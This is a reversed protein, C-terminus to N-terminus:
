KMRGELDEKILTRVKFIGWGLVDKTPIMKYIPLEDSFFAILTPGSGSMIVKEAGKAMIEKCYEKLQPYLDFTSYELVNGTAKVLAEVRKTEIANVVEKINPRKLVSINQLHGYVEKTSANFPPKLLVLELIPSTTLETIVEGRGQALATLPHLCFPVDSGLEAALKELEALTLGIQFMKNMGILVAAADASGGALGAAIPIRKYLRIKVGSVQKFNKKFLVAAQYALNGQGTELEPISCTLTIGKEEVAELEVIDHLNIGQMVMEVEHYGDKRKGLVDLALNIKAFAKITLKKM